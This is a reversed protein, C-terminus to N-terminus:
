LGVLEASREWARRQFAEDGRVAVPRLFRLGPTSTFFQGSIGALEADVALRVGMRAGQSPTRIVPTRSLVRAGIDLLRTDRVLGTAVAGPCFCNATVGTPEIRRALEQTFLINM